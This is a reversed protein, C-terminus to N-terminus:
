RADARAPPPWARAARAHPGLGPPAHLVLMAESTARGHRSPVSLHGRQPSKVPSGVTARGEGAVSGPSCGICGSGIVGLSCGTGSGVRRRGVGLQLGLAGHGAERGRGSSSTDAPAGGAGSGSRCSRRWGVVGVQGALVQDATRMRRPRPHPLGAGGAGKMSPSRCRRSWTVEFSASASDDGTSRAWAAFEVDAVSGRWRLALVGERRWRQSASWRRMPRAGLGTRWGHHRTSAVAWRSPGRSARTPRCGGRGVGGVLAMFM